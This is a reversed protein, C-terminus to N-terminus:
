RTAEDLKLIQGGSPGNGEQAPMGKLAAKIKAATQEPTRPTGPAPVAAAAKEGAPAPPAPIEGKENAFLVEGFRDMKHFDGVMPPSWAQADQKGDKSQDLRFFNMRWSSGYVPPVVTKGDKLMGNVDALPLAIEVSWGRDLDDRNDMTGDVSVAVKWSSNWSFPKKKPDIADEYKRYEPLYTDFITGRPSVQLEIYSRGDGNADVFIEVAEQTWLKDDRNKLEGWVDNDKMDFFAYLFKDDWQLKVESTLPVPDGTMTNVMLGASPVGQWDDGKGDIKPAKSAKRVVYRREVLPKVAAGAKVPLRAALVRNKDDKPGSKVTLRQDGKWIGVFVELTTHPWTAPVRIVHQDRITEGTKWREVPYKGRVPGHDVNVFTTHNPGNLHTFLRWGAGPADVVKWYHTLLVDKGPEVTAPEADMGLYVIKGDLDANVPLKPSPPAALINTKVEALDEATPTDDEQEVCAANVAFGSLLAGVVLIRNQKSM